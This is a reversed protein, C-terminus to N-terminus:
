AQEIPVGRTRSLLYAGDRFRQPRYGEGMYHCLAARVRERWARALEPRDRLLSTLDPPIAVSIWPGNLSLDPEGPEPYGSGIVTSAELARGVSPSGAPPPGMDTTPRAGAPPATNPALAGGATAPEAGATAPVGGATALAAVRRDHLDWWALLRDSALGANLEDELPGYEDVMYRAATAGLRELNFKANLARLPDFTWSCWTLGKRLCWARQFWKLRAGIGVGQYAPLVAALHSHLGIDPDLGRHRALWGYAFGLLEGRAYAGVVLGGSGVVARLHSAPIVELDGGGWVARQVAECARFEEASRLERIVPDVPEERVARGGTTAAAPRSM